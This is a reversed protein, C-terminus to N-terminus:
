GKASGIETSASRVQRPGLCLGLGLGLVLGLESALGPQTNQQGGESVRDVLGGVPTGRHQLGDNCRLGPPFLAKSFHASGVCRYFDAHWGSDVGVYSM